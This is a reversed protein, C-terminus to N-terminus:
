NISVIDKPMCIIGQQWLNIGSLISHHLFTTKNLARILATLNGPNCASMACHICTDNELINFFSQRPNADLTKAIRNTKIKCPKKAKNKIERGTERGGCTSVSRVANLIIELTGESTGLCSTSFPMTLAALPGGAALECRAALFAGSSFDISAPMGKCSTGSVETASDDRGSSNDNGGSAAIPLPASCVPAASKLGLIM